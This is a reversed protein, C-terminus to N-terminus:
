APPPESGQAQRQSVWRNLWAIGALALGLALFSAVRTLGTLGSADILFVKAITLGIVAMAARRLTASRRALAQWIMAGGTLMLAVTYAYLEGQTVDSEGLRGAHFWSRIEYITYIVCLGAGLAGTIWRMRPGRLRRRAALVLAAPLLFAVALTDAVPPGRVIVSGDVGPFLWLTIALMVFLWSLGACWGLGVRLWRLPGGAQVRLAQALAVALWPLAILSAMWFSDMEAPMLADLTRLIVVDALLAAAVLAASDLVARTRPRDMGRLFWLAAVVGALAGGYAALTGWLPAVMARDLGPDVVLRWTLVAVGLHLFLALEPLRFRRDLAAGAALVVALALTLAGETLIAFLAFPVLALVSLTAYATAASYPCDDAVRRRALMLAVGTMLAAAAMAHLAWGYAGLVASPSWQMEALLGTAPLMLASLAAWLRPRDAGAAARWGFALAMLAAMGLIVSLTVPPGTEPLRLDQAQQRFGTVLPSGGLAEIGLRLLFGAVPLVALDSLAPAHWGWIALAVAMAALVALVFLGLGADTLPLRLVLVLVAVLMAGAALRAPFAPWDGATRGRLATLLAEAVGPGDQRPVLARGPVTIALLALVPMLLVLGRDGGGAAWVALGAGFGLALALVSVWAWRRLTDIGLGVAAVLAVHAYLWEPAQSGGGTLFPAAAAGVLGMAALASGYFWGLVLAAAATLLLGAFTPVPGILGYMLRAALIAAFIVSLGAATFTSPLYATPGETDGFRRRMWEGGAILAVGLALAALVRVPPPLYGKEVGYQLLFLGALALSLGSVAIIWNAQFWAVLAAVRDPRFVIPRNQDDDSVTAAAAAAPALDPPVQPGLGAWPGPPVPSAVAVPAAEPAPEPAAEAPEAVAAPTAEAADGVPWGAAAPRASLRAELDRVRRELRSVAILLWVVAGALLLGILGDFPYFM